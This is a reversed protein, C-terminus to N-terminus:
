GGLLPAVHRELWAADVPGAGSSLDTRLRGERDIIFTTPLRWIRGYGEFDAEAALAAHFAFGHLAARVAPLSDARDLSIALVEVGRDRYKSRFTELAPMEVRCPACWTAWFTVILVKGAVQQRTFRSGDLLTAALPPADRRPDATAGQWPSCACAMALALGLWSRSAEGRPVKTTSDRINMTLAPVSQPERQQSSAMGPIRAHSPKFCRVPIAKSNVNPRVWRLVALNAPAFQADGIPDDASM